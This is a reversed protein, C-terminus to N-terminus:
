LYYTGCPNDSPDVGKSVIIPVYQKRGKLLSSIQEVSKLVYEQNKTWRRTGQKLAAFRGKWLNRKKRIIKGSCKTMKDGDALDGPWHHSLACMNEVQATLATLDHYVIIFNVLHHTPTSYPM